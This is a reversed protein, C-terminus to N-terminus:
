SLSEKRFKFIVARFIFRRTMLNLIGIVIRKHWHTSTYIEPGESHSVCM